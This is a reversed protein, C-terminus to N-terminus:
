ARPLPLGAEAALADAHRVGAKLHALGGVARAAAARCQTSNLVATNAARRGETLRRGSGSWGVGGAASARRSAAAAACQAVPDDHSRPATTQLTAASHPLAFTKPYLNPYSRSLSRPTM